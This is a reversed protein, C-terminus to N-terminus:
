QPFKILKLEEPLILLMWNLVLNAHKLVQAGSQTVTWFTKFSPYRRCEALFELSDLLRVCVRVYEGLNRM